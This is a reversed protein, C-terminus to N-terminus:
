YNQKIGTSIRLNALGCIVNSLYPELNKVKGFIKVGNKNM